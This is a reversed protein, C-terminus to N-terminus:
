GTTDVVIIRVGQAALIPFGISFMAASRVM